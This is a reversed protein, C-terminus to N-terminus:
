REYPMMRWVLIRLEAERKVGPNRSKWPSIPHRPKKHFIQFICITDLDINTMGLSRYIFESIRQSSRHVTKILGFFFPNFLEPVM